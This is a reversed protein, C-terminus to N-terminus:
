HAWRRLPPMSCACWVTCAARHCGSLAFCSRNSSIVSLFISFMDTYMCLITYSTHVIAVCRALTHESRICAHAHTGLIVFCIEKRVATGCIRPVIIHIYVHASLSVSVSHWLRRQTERVRKRQREIDCQTTTDHCRPCYRTHSGLHTIHVVNVQANHKSSPQAFPDRVPTPVHAKDLSASRQIFTYIYACRAYIVIWKPATGDVVFFVDDDHRM